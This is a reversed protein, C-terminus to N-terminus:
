TSLAPARAAPKGRTAALRAAAENSRRKREVRWALWGLLAAGTLATLDFGAMVWDGLPM